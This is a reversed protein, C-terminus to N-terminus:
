STLYDLHEAQLIGFCSKKLADKKKSRKSLRRKNIEQQDVDESYKHCIRRVTQTSVNCIEAISSITAYRLSRTTPTLCHFRALLVFSILDGKELPCRLFTRTM